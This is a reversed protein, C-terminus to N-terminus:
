IFRLVTDLIVSSTATTGGAYLRNPIAGTQDSLLSFTLENPTARVIMTQFTNAVKTTGPLPVNILFLSRQVASIDAKRLIGKVEIANGSIRVSLEDSASTVSPFSLYKLVRPDNYPLWMVEKNIAETVWGMTTADGQNVPAAALPTSGIPRVNLWAAARDTLDSLNNSKKLYTDVVTSLTDAMSKWSPGTFSSGDPLPVEIQGSSSFVRQWTVKDTIAARRAWATDAALQAHIGILVAQPVATWVVGSTTSGLFARAITLSTNSAIASVVLTYNVGGLAVFIIDGVSLDSTFATGSGTVATNNQTLTLTGTAM